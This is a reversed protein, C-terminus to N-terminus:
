NFGLTRIAGKPIYRLVLLDRATTDVDLKITNSDVKTPTASVEAAAATGDSGRFLTCGIVKSIPLSGSPLDIGNGATVAGPCFAVEVFKPM